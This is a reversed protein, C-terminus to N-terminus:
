RKIWKNNAFLYTYYGYIEVKMEKFSCCQIPKIYKWKEGKRNAYHRIENEGIESCFGGAILNLVDEYNSFHKKLADGVLDGDWHCYIGIYTGNLTIEKSKERCSEDLYLKNTITNYIKWSKLKIPLKNVDFKIKKGIDEEKIKLIIKSPTSM